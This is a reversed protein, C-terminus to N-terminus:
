NISQLVVLGCPVCSYQGPQSPLFEFINLTKIRIPIANNETTPLNLIKKKLKGFTLSIHEWPIVTWYSWSRIKMDVPAQELQTNNPEKLGHVAAQAKSKEQM